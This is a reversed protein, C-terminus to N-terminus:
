TSITITDSLTSLEKCIRTFELSNISVVSTYDTEPITLVEVDLSILNMAFETTRKDHVGEFLLNLHSPCEGFASLTISDTPSALRLIKSLHDLNVGLVMNSDSRYHDFGESSLSLSVFAIHLSDM